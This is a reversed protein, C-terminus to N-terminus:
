NGRDIRFRPSDRIVVHAPNTPDGGAKVVTFRAVYEGDPVLRANTLTMAFVSSPNGGHNRGLYEAAGIYRPGMWAREGLPIFEIDFREVHHLFSIELLPVDLGAMTFATGPDVEAIGTDTFALLWPGGAIAPLAQYDGVFGAAPVVMLDAGPVDGHPAFVLYTGYVTGQPAAPAVIAVEVQAIGGAPVTIQDIEAGFPTFFYVEPPAIVFSPANTSGTTAAPALGFAEIQALDYTIASGTDNRITLLEGAYGRANASEGLSLAAPTVSTRAQIAAPIQVMGAGQRHVADLVFALSPNLTFRQPFAHNMLATAVEPASLNPRTQRVLAAAGAVHPASMSTGSLMAYTPTGATGPTADILYTSTIFGGPAGIEPKLTLDPALGFSSFTSILGPTDENPLFAPGNWDVIVPAPLGALLAGNAQSISLVAVAIPVDGLTGSFNGPANNAILVTTAGATAANSAKEAFPCTGRVALAIKATPDALLPDGNCARGVFVVEESGQTPAAISGAMRGFSIVNEGATLFGESFITTNDFSAVSLVGAGVGPAGGSYVGSAGSNGISAVAVIGLEPLRGLAISLLDQPWGFASGLSLNVVHMGDQYARELAALIVDSSTSAPTGNPRNCAFVRYAGLTVGPAVGTLGGNAGIIGAVHTGHGQCDGGGPRSGPAPEPAPTSYQADTLYRDGVFDFGFGIRGAFDPHALAIGTDIVGVRVGAGSAGFDRQAVDAGTMTLASLLNPTIGEHHDVRPGEILAVPTVRVVGPLTSFRLADFADMEVSLGSVLTGFTYRPTFAIGESAASATLLTIEDAMLGLNGGDVAAPVALEVFWLRPLTGAGPRASPAGQFPDVLTDIPGATPLTPRSPSGADPSPTSTSCAALLAALALTLLLTRLTRQMTDHGKM